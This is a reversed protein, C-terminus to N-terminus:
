QPAMGEQSRKGNRFSEILKAKVGNRVRKWYDCDVEKEGRKFLEDFWSDIAEMYRPPKVSDSPPNHDPSDKHHEKPLMEFREAIPQATEEEGVNFWDALKQAAEKEKCKEM